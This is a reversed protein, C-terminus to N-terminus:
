KRGGKRFYRVETEAGARHLSAIVVASRATLRVGGVQRRRWRDAFVSPSMRGSAVEREDHLRGALRAVAAPGKAVVQVRQGNTATVFGSMEVTAALGGGHGAAARPSFGGAKGLEQRVRYNSVGRRAMEFRQSGPIM